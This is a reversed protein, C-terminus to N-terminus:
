RVSNTAGKEKEIRWKRIETETPVIGRNALDRRAQKRIYNESLRRDAEHALLAKEAGLVLGFITGVALRGVEAIVTMLHADFLRVPPFLFGKSHLRKGGSLPRLSVSNGTPRM